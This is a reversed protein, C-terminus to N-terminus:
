GQSLRNAAAHPQRHNSRFAAVVGRDVAEQLGHKLTRRGGLKLGRQVVGEVLRAIPQQQPLLPLDDGMGMERMPRHKEAGHPNGHRAQAPQADRRFM